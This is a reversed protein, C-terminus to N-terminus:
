TSFPEQSDGVPIDPAFWDILEPTPLSAPDFVSVIVAAEDFLWSTPHIPRGEVFAAKIAIPRTVKRRANRLVEVRVFQDILWHDAPHDQDLDNEEPTMPRILTDIKNQKYGAIEEAFEGALEHLKDWHVSDTLDIVLSENIKVRLVASLNAEPIPRKDRSSAVRMAWRAASRQANAFFYSGEGLWM